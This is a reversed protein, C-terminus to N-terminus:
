GKTDGESGVCTSLWGLPSIGLLLVPRIKLRQQGGSMPYARDKSQRM